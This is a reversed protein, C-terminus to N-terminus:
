RPDRYLDLYFDLTQRGGVERDAAHTFGFKRFMAIAPGREVRVDLVVKLYGNDRCFDIATELLRSGIGRRRFRPQVRLRRVDASDASTRQVGIMGIVEGDHEAVWFGSTGDAALYADVIHMIDAGTDNGRLHGDEGGGLYLTEIPTQDAATALRIRVGAPDLPPIPDGGADGPGGPDHSQSPPVYM